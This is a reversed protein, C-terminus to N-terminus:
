GARERREALKDVAERDVVPPTAKDAPETAATAPAAASGPEAKPGSPNTFRDNLEQVYGNADALVRTIRKRAWRGWGAPNRAFLPRIPRTSRAFARLISERQMGEPMERLISRTCGRAAGRRIAFHLAILIILAVAGGIGSIIPHSMAWAMWPPDFRLGDWWGAWISGGIAAAALSGFLLADGFVVKARWRDLLERLYPVHREEIARAVKELSGVIRYDREVEVQHMRSYIEALDADRKSEFRKRLAENEIPVAADPNYITYFRGATLGRQALARQWAAIVDEPNDERATTDIQNLIYLFKSSDHRNITDSVLHQLTDQMAGPEPHRADFLVLVLDSLDIIHDTIRLTSTRQADADFGPSDIIIKGKLSDCPCAKLQMYADIRRGEGAAVKEIEHSIKYFPFRPDADLALGPLTRAEGERSFCMVSFKDDVAQNGTQQLRTGLYHNIFTSKGASFTGLLAVLPWWPIRTAYSQDRNLLGLGYAVRDLERFSRVVNLLVPNEQALHAELSELRKEIAKSAKAM